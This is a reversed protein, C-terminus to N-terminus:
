PHRVFIVNHCNPSTSCGKLPGGEGMFVCGECSKYIYQVPVAQYILGDEKNIFKEGTDVSDGVWLQRLGVITTDFERSPSSFNCSKCQMMSDGDWGHDGGVLLTEFNGENLDGSESQVLEATIVVNVCLTVGGCEPCKWM